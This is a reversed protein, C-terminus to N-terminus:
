TKDQYKGNTPPSIYIYIYIYAQAGARQESERCNHSEEREGEEWTIELKYKITREYTFELTTSVRAEGWHHRRDINFHMISLIKDRLEICTYAKHWARMLPMPLIQKM